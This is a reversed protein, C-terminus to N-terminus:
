MLIKEDFKDQLIILVLIYRYGESKEKEYLNFFLDVGSFFYKLVSLILNVSGDDFNYFYFFRKIM